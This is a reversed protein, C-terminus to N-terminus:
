LKGLAERARNLDDGSLGLSVAKKLLEKAGDTGEIYEAYGQYYYIEPQDKFAIEARRAEGRALDPRGCLMYVYCLNMWDRYIEPGSYLSRRAENMARDPNRRSEALARSYLYLYESNDPQVKEIEDFLAFAEDAKGTRYLNWARHAQLDGQDPEVTLGHDVLELARAFDGQEEYYQAALVLADAEDPMTEVLAEVLRGRDATARNWGVLRIMNEWRPLSGSLPKIAFLFSDVAVKNEGALALFEARVARLDAFHQAFQPYRNFAAVAEGPKKELRYIDLYAEFAPRYNPALELARRFQKDAEKYMHVSSDAYIRGVATVWTANDAYLTKLTDMRAQFEPLAGINHLLIAERMRHERETTRYAIQAQIQQSPVRKDDLFSSIIVLRYKMFNVFSEVYNGRDLSADLANLEATCTIFDSVRRRTEINMAYPTLSRRKLDILQTNVALAEYDQRAARQFDLRLIYAPATNAGRADVFTLVERSDKFYGLRLSRQFHDIMADFDDRDRQWERRSFQMSSDFKGTMEFFDAAVRDFLNDEPVSALAKGIYVESSDFMNDRFFSLGILLDSTAQPQGATVARSALQRAVGPQDSKAILRAVEAITHGGDTEGVLQLAIGGRDLAVEFLGLREYVRMAGLAAEPLRPNREALKAYLAAADWLLMQREQSLALGVPGDFRMTDARLIQIFTSDAQDFQYDALQKEATAQLSAYEQEPTKTCAAALLILLSAALIRKM